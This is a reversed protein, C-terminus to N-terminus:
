IKRALNYYGQSIYLFGRRAIAQMFGGVTLFSFITGIAICTALEVSLYEYSWLSFRLTLMSLVSIAMPLAFIAGRIFGKVMIGLKHMFTYTKNEQFSSFNVDEKIVNFIELALDFVDSM